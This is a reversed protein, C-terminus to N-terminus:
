EAEPRHRLKNRLRADRNRGVLDRLETVHIDLHERVAKRQSPTLNKDALKSWDESIADRVSRIKWEDLRETEGLDSRRRLGLLRLLKMRAGLGNPPASLVSPKLQGNKM